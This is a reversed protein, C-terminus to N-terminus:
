SNTVHNESKGEKNDPLGTRFLKEGRETAIFAIRLLASSSEELEAELEDTFDVISGKSTAWSPLM